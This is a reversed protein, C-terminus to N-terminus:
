VDRVCIVRSEYLLGVKMLIDFIENILYSNYQFNKNKSHWCYFIKMTNYDFKDDHHNLRFFIKLIFTGEEM